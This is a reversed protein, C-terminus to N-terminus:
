RCQWTACITTGVGPRSEISVSGGSLAAREKMGALGLGGVTPKESELPELDFGTGNDEVMLILNRDQRTLSLKVRHASSHKGINNLAEQLIRFIVIKLAAPVDDERVDIRTAISVGKFTSEFERCFWSITALIGLDDLVPPRLNRTVRRVEEFAEQVMPVVTQLSMACTGGIDEGKMEQLISEVRFKIASLSQGLGDHLDLAILKREEEHADLLRSSVQRLEATREAVRRELEEHAKRSAEEAQKRETIDEKVGVFHTIVGQENKIPSISASEWYFEGTKKKNYFEGRWVRGSTITRWLEQYFEQSHEGSKLIRPNKGITDEQPYCTMEVFKPNVYEINGDADTIVVSAPSQAVAQSLKRLAGETNKRQTVDIGTGIVHEVTGNNSLLATNSWTILHRRGDKGVWHNEHRNPFQGSRLEAFVGKVAEVEEPILLVEWFPKGRVQEFSHGTLQECARNFRVIQGERDLVVVLAGATSLVAAIFDREKRLAEETRGRDVAGAELHRVRQILEEYPPRTSM